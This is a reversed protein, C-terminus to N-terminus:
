NLVKGTTLLQLLLQQQPHWPLHFLGKGAWTLSTLSRNREKKPREVRDGWSESAPKGWSSRDLPSLSLLSLSRLCFPLWLRTVTQNQFHCKWKQQIRKILLLEACGTYAWLSPIICWFTPIVPTMKSTAQWM